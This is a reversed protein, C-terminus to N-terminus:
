PRRRRESVLAELTLLAFALALPIYFRETYEWQQASGTRRFADPDTLDRYVDDLNITGTGVNLMVGGASAAALEALTRTDLRSRVPQGDYLIPEGTAPHPVFSGNTDGVGLAIIRIGARAAAAAADVPFSDQDEGDTILIIDRTIPGGQPDDSDAEFVQDVTKRIADGIFTGGVHASSPSLEDLAMDFFARDLTLPCRVVAAGAFAVLAIRDGQLSDALDRIWLKSRDLRNPALDTALMSRSVDVVFVIDRGRQEVEVPRPDTQPRTLSLSLCALAAAFLAAKLWRAPRRVSRTLAALMPEDAFRRMLRTSARISWALLFLAAPAAWLTHLLEPHALHFPAGPNM